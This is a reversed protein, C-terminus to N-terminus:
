PNEPKLNVQLVSSFVRLGYSGTDVLINNITQCNTSGPSCITVSTCPENDYSDGDCQGTNGISVTMVNPGPPIAVSGNVDVLNQGGSFAWYPGTGIPSKTHELGVYVTRGFFFPLGMDGFSGLSGSSDGGLNMFAFNGSNFLNEANGIQFPFSEQKNNVGIATATSSYNASPCFWQNYQSNTCDRYYKSSAPIFYGNSGSDIIGSMQTGNFEDTFEGYTDDATLETVAAPSNNSETGIGLLMYGNAFYGGSYAVTPLVLAVGNNDQPLEAVPNTVQEALTATTATCSSNNCVYYMQTTSDTTCQSGCDQKFLGVGLIGNFGATKPDTDPSPCSSPVTAYSSDIVQVPITVAPEGGLVVNAMEVPGWDSGTGFQACEALVQGTPSYYGAAGNGGAGVAEFSKGCNNFGILLLFTGVVIIAITKGSWQEKM